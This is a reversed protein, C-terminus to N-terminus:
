VNHDRLLHNIKSILMEFSASSLAIVIVGKIQSETLFFSTFLILVQEDAPNDHIADLSLGTEFSIYDLKVELINGFEGILSNLLVNCIEKIVDARESSLVLDNKESLERGLCANVLISAKDQPFVISAKGNFKGGFTLSTLIAGNDGSVDQRSLLSSYLDSGQCLKLEPVSLIIKQNVMESLISASAGLQINLIETLADKQMPTLM